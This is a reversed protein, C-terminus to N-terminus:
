VIAHTYLYDEWLSLSGGGLHIGDSTYDANLFGNEDRLPENVDLYFIYENNALKELLANKENINDNSIIDGQAHRAASINIISQIYIIADPQAAHIEDIIGKYYEAFSQSTGTGLDNIGLMIYVKGFKETNLLSEYSVKPGSNPPIQASSTPLDYINMGETAYFTVDDPMSGYLALGVTRSNGIFLADSFYDDDVETFTFATPETTAETSVTTTTVTNGSGDTMAPSTTTVVTIETTTVIPTTKELMPVSKNSSDKGTEIGFVIALIISAIITLILLPYSKLINIINNM